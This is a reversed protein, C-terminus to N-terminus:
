NMEELQNSNKLIKWINTINRVTLNVMISIWAAASLKRIIFCMRHGPLVKFEALEYNWVLGCWALSVDLLINEFELLEKFATKPYKLLEFDSFM